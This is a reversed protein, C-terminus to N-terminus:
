LNRRSNKSYKGMIKRANRKNSRGPRIPVTSKSITNIIEKYIRGRKRVNTELMMLIFKDKMSGILVNINTQYEYKLGKDENKDSIIADSKKKAIEAMNSLYITAYFDQEITIPTVGTFNQIEMKNKLVDYKIEIGWRLNYLGKFEQLTYGKDLLSTLLIEEEGSSLMFRVVRVNYVKEKHTIHIIQDNIGPKITKCFHKKQSRIVFNINSDSLFAIFAASPYGRDFLVLDNMRENEPLQNILYTATEREPTPYPDIKSKIVIKNLVDFLCSAKARAVMRNQNGSCGFTERLLHTDPIELVTGDIASLRYGNWLKLKNYGDYFIRVTQDNLEIFAKPDIKQRAECYAQKSVTEDVKLVDQYFNNLEIQLSKKAMYIIFLLTEKFGMKSKRTFFNSKLRNSCKFLFDDLLKQNEKVITQFLKCLYM